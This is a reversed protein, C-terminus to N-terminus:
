SFYQSLQASQANANQIAKEMATFQRYYRDEIQTLRSEFSTIQSNVSKLNRGLLFQESTWTSRGARQEIKSVTQTITDRLRRVIGKESTTSGSKMFLDMVSQPDKEIAEKLKTGDGEIVLKGRDSYNASTSIGIDTLQSFAGSVGSVSAYWNSRMQNLGSSLITDGKLLGSKAKEDWQEAQKDTLKEREQDTLPQYNRDREETVKGNIKEILENYKTVFDKITDFVKQTDNSVNVRVDGTFNNQLNYTVGATTFTNSKRTTELGNLTFKADTGGTEKQTDLKLFNTLFAGSFVMKQGGAGGAKSLDGTDKRTFVVKDTGEDYFASIGVKSNSLQTLVTNLSASGDFEFSMSGDANDGTAKGSSDYTTISFQLVNQKYTFGQVTSGNTLTTGFTMEGTNMNIFVDNEGILTPDGTTKINFEQSSEGNKVQISSPLSGEFIAGKSLKAAKTDDSITIDPQKVEKGSWASGLLNKQEWLSKAPDITGESIKESSINQAATAMTVNSLTYSANGASSTAAAKVKTEDASSVTKSSYSSQLTMNFALNNFDSLLLNMSRYDDRQWELTQKQKKMKDIPMREAKMLDSVIQDIDMGSALGSVRVM